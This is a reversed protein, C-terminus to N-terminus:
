CALIQKEKLCLYLDLHQFTACFHFQKLMSIMLAVKISINKNQALQFCKMKISKSNKM